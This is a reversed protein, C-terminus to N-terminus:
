NNDKNHVSTKPLIYKFFFDTLQPQMEDWFEENFQIREVTFNQHTYIVFDCWSVKCLAM